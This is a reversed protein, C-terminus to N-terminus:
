SHSQIPGCATPLNGKAVKPVGINGGVHKWSQGTWVNWIATATVEFKAALKRAIKYTREEHKRIEKVAEVNLKAPRRGKRKSDWVNDQHTGLFLHDPRVCSPNDCHHCICLGEPIPGHTIEWSFRHATRGGKFYGYGAHDKKGVWEWCSDTKQVKSWFERIDTENFSKEM